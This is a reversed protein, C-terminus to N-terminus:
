SEVGQLICFSNDFLTTNGKIRGCNFDFGGGLSAKLFTNCFAVLGDSRISVIRKTRRAFEAQLKKGAAPCTAFKDSAIQFDEHIADLHTLEEDTFCPAHPGPNRASARGLREWQASKRKTMMYDFVDQPTESRGTFENWTKVLEALECHRHIFQDIPIGYERYLARLAADEFSALQLHQRKSM